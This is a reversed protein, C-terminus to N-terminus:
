SSRDSISWLNVQLSQFYINLNPVELITLVPVTKGKKEPYLYAAVKAFLPDWIYHVMINALIFVINLSLFVDKISIRVLLGKYYLIPFKMCITDIHIAYDM